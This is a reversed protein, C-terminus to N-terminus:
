QNRVCLVNGALPTLIKVIYELYQNQYWPIAIPTKKQLCQCFTHDGFAKLCDNYKKKASQMLINALEQLRNSVNERAETQNIEDISPPAKQEAINDEAFAFSFLLMIITLLTIHNGSMNDGKNKRIVDQDDICVM